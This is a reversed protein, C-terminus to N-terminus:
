SSPFSAEKRLRLFKFSLACSDSVAWLDERLLSVFTGPSPLVTHLQPLLLHRTTHVVLFERWSLHDFENFFFFFISHFGLLIHRWAPNKGLIQLRCKLSVDKQHFSVEKWIDLHVKQWTIKVWLIICQILCGEMRAKGSMKRINVLIFM